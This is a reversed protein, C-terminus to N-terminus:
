LQFGCPTMFYQLQPCINQARHWLSPVVDVSLLTINCSHCAFFIVMAANESTDLVYNAKNFCNFPLKCYNLVLHWSSFSHLFYPFNCNIIGSLLTFSLVLYYDHKKRLIM